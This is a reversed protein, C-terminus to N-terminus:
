PPGQIIDKNNETVHVTSSQRTTISLDDLFFAMGNCLLM